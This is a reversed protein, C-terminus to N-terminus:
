SSTKWKLDSLLKAPQSIKYLFHRVKCLIYLIPYVKKYNKLRFPYNLVKFLLSHNACIRPIGHRNIMYNDITINVESDNLDLLVCFSKRTYRPWKLIASDQLKIQPFIFNGISYFIPKGLYYEFGNVIHPHHGLIIDAGCDIMKKAQSRQLPSPYSIFEIGWHITIITYFGKSKFLKIDHLLRDFLYVNAGPKDKEAPITGIHKGTDSIAIIVIKPNSHIHFFPKRAEEINKDAGFSRFGMNDVIKKTDIVGKDGYDTIHNNALGFVNINGIDLLPVLTSDSKLIARRKLRKTNSETIPAEFNCLFIDPKRYQKIWQLSKKLETSHENLQQDLFIDGSVYIKM